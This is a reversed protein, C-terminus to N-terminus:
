YEWMVWGSNLGGFTNESVRRNVYWTGTTIGVRVQYTVPTTTNPADTISLSLTASNNSSQVIQLAGGIYTSNRFLAATLYANNTSGAGAISTQIVYKGQTSYPTITVSWIQTGATVVPTTTSVAIITTGTASAINNSWIRKAAGGGGVSGFNIWQSGNYYLTEGLVPTTIVTDALDDLVLNQNGSGVLSYGAITKINTGSVLVPQVSLDGSGLISVSNITKINTGSVLVPQVSIDGSGLLTTTNITKISTGSVLVTQLNINGTGLLTTSNITKINTGSVLVPQVSIDGSGLLSTTNITKISTGSVLVPQKGDLTAQLNTIASIPHQDALDRGTLSQHSETLTTTASKSNLGYKTVEVIVVRAANNTYNNKYRLTIRYMLAMEPFDLGSSNLVELSADSLTTYPTRGLVMKIPYKTDNTAFVWYNIYSNSNYTVEALSGVGGTVDNYYAINNSSYLWNISGPEHQVYNSGLLYLVPIKASTNLVQEYFNSPSSSNVINHPLDEDQLVIPTSLGISTATDDELTYSISGGNRWVAGVTFHQAAHWLTDRMITHREDGFVLAKSNVSDWHIYAVIIIGTEISITPGSDELNGTSYNYTIYRGGSTNAITITKTTTIIYEAGLHYVSYTGFTPSITFVRSTENFSITSDTGNVFGCIDGTLAGVGSMGITSYDIINVWKSGSAVEVYGSDSNYRLLGNTFTPRQASSGSPVQLSGTGQILLAGTDPIIVSINSVSKDDNNFDM